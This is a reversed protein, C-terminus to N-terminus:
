VQFFDCTMCVMIEEKAPGALHASESILQLIKEKIQDYTKLNMSQVVTYHLSTPKKQQADLVARARWNQHHLVVLPSDKSVHLEQGAFTWRSNQKKILGFQELEQLTQETWNKDLHLYEAISSTTQYKPISVLIHLASYYWASYYTFEKQGLSVIPRQVRKQINEHDAKLNKLKTEIKNRYSASSAKEKELLLLFFDAENEPMQWYESLNHIHDATLHVESNLMRSFYSRQCDAAEALKSIHGWSHPAYKIRTRIFDKYDNFTFVNNKTM